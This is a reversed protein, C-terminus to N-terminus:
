RSAAYRYLTAGVGRCLWAPGRRIATALARRALPETGSLVRPDLSSYVLPRATAGWGSKFAQLGAAGLDTRGFDFRRDGRRCGAQIATWFLAHNPRARWGEPDSAGFKYITTGNWHLFLAGALLAGDRSALLISGLGPEIMRSWLLDFVRRPQVPVGLRRRTRTHLAYFAALDARSAAARVAVGEREARKINRVVQSRAFREHVRHPDPELDLVHVVAEARSAWGVADVRARIELPQGAVSLADVFGREAASSRVLLPCEDTFPLSILRAGRLGARTTAVMPAGALLTGDDGRLALAYARYGYCEALLQAWVPLHFPTAGPSAAVFDCWLPDDLRLRALPLQAVSM